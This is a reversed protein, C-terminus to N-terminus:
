PSCRSPTDLREGWARCDSAAGGPAQHCRQDRHFRCSRESDRCTTELEGDAALWQYCWRETGLLQDYLAILGVAVICFLALAGTV